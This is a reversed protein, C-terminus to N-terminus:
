IVYVDEKELSYEQLKRFYEIREERKRAREEDEDPDVEEIARKKGKDKSAPPRGRLTSRGRTAPKAAASRGNAVPAGARGRGRGRGTGRGRGRGRGRTARPPPTPPSSDSDHEEESGSGSETSEPVNERGKGKGKGKKVVEARSGSAEGARAKKKPRKPLLAELRRVAAKPDSDEESEKEKEKEKAVGRTRKKGAVKPPEAYPDEYELTALPQRLKSPGAKEKGKGKDLAAAVARGRAAAAAGRVVSPKKVPSPSEDRVDSGGAGFDDSLGGDSFHPTPLPSRHHASRHKHPTRLAHTTPSGSSSSPSELLQDLGTKRASALLIPAISDENEDLLNDIESSSGEGTADDEQRDDPALYPPRMNEKDENLDYDDTPVNEKNEGDDELGDSDDLHSPGPRVPDVDLYLDDINHDDDSPIPTPLRDPISVAISPVEDLALTGLPARTGGPARSSELATRRQRITKLKKEAALLGFLDDDSPPTNRKVYVPGRAPQNEDPQDSFDAQYRPQSSTAVPVQTPPSPAPPSSPPLPSYAREVDINWRRISTSHRGRQSPRLSAELAPLRGLPTSEVPIPARVIRAPSPTLLLAKAAESATSDDDAIPISEPTSPRVSVPFSSPPLSGLPVHRAVRLIRPRAAQRELTPSIPSPVPPANEDVDVDESAHRDSSPDDAIPLSVHKVPSLAPLPSTVINPVVKRPRGRGRKPPPAENTVGTEKRASALRAEDQAVVAPAVDDVDATEDAEVDKGRKSRRVRAKIEVVPVLELKSARTAKSKPKQPTNGPTKDQLVPRRRTRM